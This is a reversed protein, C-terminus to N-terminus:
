RDDGRSFLNEDFKFRLRLYFGRNTYEDGALEDDRFGFVNYGVSVWLNDKVQRGVEGGVGFQRTAFGDSFLTSAIVGLDWKTTVDWTVRGGVLHTISSSEMGNSHEDVAKGAYRATYVVNSGPQYNLHASVIHASHDVGDLANGIDDERRFEYRALGSWENTESDRYAVGIQFRSQDRDQTEPGKNDTLFVISKALLTWSDSLKRAVGLTNLISDASPSTRYELRATGKWLPNRTYELASTIATAENQDAESFAHVREFGTDARLGDAVKWRNRLGFAAEAERGSLGDRVRYENFTHGDRMYEADLGVVTTNQRQTDNLEYPGQLSSIFEHRVYLRGRNAVQYDGGVAALQKDSEDIAQEGEVYLTAEPHKPVEATLKARVSTTETNADAGPALLSPDREDRVYRAGVDVRMANPLKQEVGVLVGNRNEDLTVDATHIAEAVLKTEDSVRYASRLGGESRGNNLYASPNSFSQDTRGAYARMQLAGSEHRLEVRQGDGVGTTERDTRAAEASLVTGAALKFQANVGSTKAPDLPNRDDTFIGGVEISDTLKFQADTGGLWYSEGGTDVEYTIRISIPNLDEDVSQVPRRFLLRGTFLEIEYDSFRNQVESKLIVAPQNRDRTLIEVRESNIEANSVRLQYPGSTGNARLEDVIQTTSDHSAFANVTLRDNQYHEKLGNQSRNYASLSRATALGPQTQFDGYLLYSREKDVRVYLRGTSQADFGKVASDGYVPYFQDPQIDRFLRERTDKDSDFGLTLLYEGKVKGKLFMAARAGADRKGDGSTRAFAKIEDEFHDQQRAPVLARSDLKRLNLVGEIVGTALMPRLEAKFPVKLEGEISGSRAQILSEGPELPARLAVETTGGEVFLQVGPETDNLDRMLLDGISAEITVLTREAVPVDHEDFLRMRLRAVTNGDAPALSDSELVIRALPGPAIVTISSTGVTGDVNRQSLTLANEGPKLEVGVYDRTEITENRALQRTGIRDEPIVEGNVTLTLNAHARGQVRVSSQTAPMVDRDKLTVFHADSTLVPVSGAVPPTIAVAPLKLGAPVAVGVLHTEVPTNGTTTNQGVIGSAPLSRADGLPMLKGDATLVTRVGQEVETSADMRRRREKLTLQTAGSCGELAFDARHLEGNKLDVFVSRADGANRNSLAELRTGPPLTTADVKLVHTRPTIGAFSYKGEGDTIVFSGDELYIRAEPVGPEDADQMRNQNCDAFFKGVIFADDSFV